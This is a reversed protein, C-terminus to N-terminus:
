DCCLRVENYVSSADVRYADCAELSIIYSAEMVGDPLTSELLKPFGEGVRYFAAGRLTYDRDLYYEEHASRYGAAVLKEEFSVRVDPAQDDIIRRVGDVLRPLTNEGAGRRVDFALRGLYLAEIGADDLQRINSIPVRSLEIAATSKVEISISGFEYDQNTRSSGTWANLVCRAPVSSEHVLTFLYLEGYLGTQRSESLAGTQDSFFEKWKDIVSFVREVAAETSELSEIEQCVRSAFVLFVDIYEQDELEMVVSVDGDPLKENSDIVINLGKINRKRLGSPLASRRVPGIDLAPKRNPFTCAAYIPLPADEDIRQRVRQDPMGPQLMLEEWLLRVSNLKSTM